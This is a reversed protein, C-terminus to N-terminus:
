RRKYVAHSYFTHEKAFLSWIGSIVRSKDPQYCVSVMWFGHGSLSVDDPPSLCDGAEFQLPMQEQTFVMRIGLMGREAGLLERTMSLYAPGAEHLQEPQTMGQMSVARILTNNVDHLRDNLRIMRSIDALAFILTLLLPIFILAEM